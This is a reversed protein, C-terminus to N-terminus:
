VWLSRTSGCIERRSRLLRNCIPTKRSIDNSYEEDLLATLPIKTGSLKGFSINTVGDLTGIMDNVSVFRVHKKPVHIQIYYGVDIMSRGLRSLDKIIVCDIEGMDIDDLM